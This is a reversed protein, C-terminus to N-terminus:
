RPLVEGLATEVEALGVQGGKRGLIATPGRGLPRTLEPASALFIAVLPVGFAAAVHLLGTDVGVVVAAGAILRAVADLAQKKPIRVNPVAAAIRESRAREASSGWPLVVEFGRAAITKGLAIWQAEPWQKEARATAHLLM